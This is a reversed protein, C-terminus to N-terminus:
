NNNLFISMVQNTNALNELLFEPGTMRLQEMSYSSSAVAVAVAHHRQACAVDFPTDGIVYVSQPDLRYGHSQEMRALAFPVLENRDASDDAYAGLAFFDQIGLASLKIRASHQWNGTLLGCVLSPHQRITSLLEPVGPYLFKDPSRYNIEDPLLAFYQKKFNALVESNLEPHYKKLANRFIEEDTRGALDVGELADRIGWIVEFAQNMARKGAGGSNLLTGDIDFLLLKPTPM